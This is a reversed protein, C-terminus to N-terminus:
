KDEGELKEVGIWKKFLALSIEPVYVEINCACVNSGRPFVTIMPCEPLTQEIELKQHFKGLDDILNHGDIGFWGDIVRVWSEPKKTANYGRWADTSHWTMSKAIGLAVEYLDGEPQDDEFHYLAYGGIQYKFKEGRWDYIVLSSGETEDSEYCAYCLWKQGHLADAYDDGEFIDRSDMLWRENGDRMIQIVTEGCGDCKQTLKLYDMGHDDLWIRASKKTWKTQTTM